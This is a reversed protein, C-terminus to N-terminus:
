GPKTRQLTTFGPSHRRRLGLLAICFALWAMGRPAPRSSLSCGGDDSSSAGSSSAGTGASGGTAAGASGGSGTVGGSGAAGGAGGPSDVWASLFSAYLDTRRYHAPELCGALDSYSDVGVITEAGDLVVLAPGGSDGVCSRRDLDGVSLTDGSDVAAIVTDASNKEANPQGYTTQGYGVIRAAKGAIDGPLSTMRVPLVPTSLPAQLIAVGIDATFPPSPNYSPHVHVEKVPLLKPVLDAATPFANASSGAFVGFSEGAHDAPDVCHAATLLVDPAVLTATCTAFSSQDSPYSVLLVVAPDGSDVSGGVIASSGARTAADDPASCGAVGLVLAVAVAARM